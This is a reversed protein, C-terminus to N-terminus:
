KKKACLTYRHLISIFIKENENTKKFLCAPSTRGGYLADRPELPIFPLFKTKLREIEAKPINKENMFECEWKEIVRYGANELKFTFNKTRSYLNCYKENLVPNYDYPHFCNPCGHFFCGRFQYVINNYFRDVYRDLIKKEGTLSCKYELRGGLQKNIESLWVLGILSQNVKGRYGTAPIIGICKKRLFNFRFIKLALSQITDYFPTITSTESFLQSFKICGKRLIGVDSSCYYYMEERFKYIGKKSKEVYWKEFENKTKEDMNKKDFFKEDIM